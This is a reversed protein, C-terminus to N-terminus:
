PSRAAIQWQLVEVEVGDLTQAPLREVRTRNQSVFALQEAYWLTGLRPGAHAIDGQVLSNHTEPARIHISASTAGDVDVSEIFRFTAHNRRMIYNPSVPSRTIWDNGQIATRLQRLPQTDVKSDHEEFTAQCTYDLQITYIVEARAIVGDLLESTTPAAAYANCIILCLSTLPAATALAAGRTITRFM